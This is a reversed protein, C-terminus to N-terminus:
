FYFNYIYILIPLFMSSAILGLQIIKSNYLKFGLLSIIISFIFPILISYNRLLGCYYKKWVKDEIELFNINNSLASKYVIVKSGTEFKEDEPNFGLRYRQNNKLELIIKFDVAPRKGFSSKNSFGYISNLYSIESKYHPLFNDFLLFLIFILNLISVTYVIKKSM